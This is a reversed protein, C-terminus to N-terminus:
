VFGTDQFNLRLVSMLDAPTMPYVGMECLLSEEFGEERVQMSESRMEFIQMVDEDGIVEDKRALWIFFWVPMFDATIV